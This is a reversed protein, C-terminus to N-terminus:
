RYEPPVDAFRKHKLGFPFTCVYQSDNKDVVRKDFINNKYTKEVYSSSVQPTKREIKMKFSKCKIAKEENKLFDKLMEIMVNHNLKEQVQLSKLDFGRSKVTEEGSEQRLSYNKAGLTCFSVVKTNTELKYAGYFKEGISLEKRIQEKLREERPFLSFTCDTDSYFHKCGLEQMKRFDKLMAVRSLATVYSYLVSNTRTHFGSYMDIPECVVEAINANLPCISKLKYRSDDSVLDILDDFSNIYQIKDRFDTQGLKGLGQNQCFKSFARRSDNKKVDAVTLNLGPMKENTFAVYEKKEQETKVYSPFGEAQMKMRALKMYFKKFVPECRDYALMEWVNSIRYGCEIAFVLEPVTWVSTMKRKEDCHKCLNDLSKDMCTQCLAFKLKGNSVQPLVPLFLSDPPLVSAHVLGHIEKKEGQSSDYFGKSDWSIHEMAKEGIIKRPIGVPFKETAATFPYLSNKDAVVFEEGNPIDPQTYLMRFVEVRGGRLATRIRLRENPRKQNNVFTRFASDRRMRADFECEYLAVVECGEKRYENFKMQVRQAASECRVFFPNFDEPSLHGSIPCDPNVSVHHHTCCGLFEYVVRRGDNCEEYGDPFYSGVKKQGDPHNYETRIVKGTSELYSLWQIEKLSTKRGGRQNSLLYFSEDQMEFFLFVSHLFSGSTFFPSSFCHFYFSPPFEKFENMYKLKIQTCHEANERNLEQQFEFFERMFVLCGNRLIAVDKKLYHHMEDRFNYEQGEPWSNKFEQYSLMQEETVYEDLFYERAPFSGCYDYNESKNLLHPFFGKENEQGHALEPFRKPFDRIPVKVYRYSDVFRLKLCGIELLLCKNGEFLPKVDVRRALFENLLLLMDYQSGAHSVFTYNYFKPDLIYEVFKSIAKGPISPRDDDEELLFHMQNPPFESGFESELESEEGSAVGREQEPLWDHDDENDEIGGHHYGGGPQFDSYFLYM